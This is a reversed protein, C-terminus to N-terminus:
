EARRQLAAAAHPEVLGFGFPMDADAAERDARAERPPAIEGGLRNRIEALQTIEGALGRIEGHHVVLEDDYQSAHLAALDHTRQCLDAAANGHHCRADALRH